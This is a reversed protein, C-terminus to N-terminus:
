VSTTTHSVHQRDKFSDEAMLHINNERLVVGTLRRSATSDYSLSCDNGDGAIIQEHPAPSNMKKVLPSTPIAQRHSYAAIFPCYCM